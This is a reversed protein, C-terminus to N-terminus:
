HLSARNKVWCYFVKVKNGIDRPLLGDHQLRGVVIGPAIGVEDAFLQIAALTPQGEALFRRLANPPILKDRAFANAEEEKAGDLGNSEIFVEKRGHKLIHGAEHFFTFWLHDNSKYRLSLQIVAKDGMWRTVGYVGIKPLEPVFVVAVGASACLEVLKPQFVQPIEKTLERIKALIDQFRNRDFPACDMKQAEIEGQRLWASVSEADSEFCHTRRYAVQHEQWVTIWQEPSAIGYFRLVAELQAVKDKLKPIWGLKILDNLPIRKLWDLHSQLRAQEALRIKDEQYQRELNNWFHAPRGLTRELKLATEPTIPSKGRIIENITKKTLGTRTALEAQTMSYAELYDELVEGPTVLDDPIYQNLRTSVM